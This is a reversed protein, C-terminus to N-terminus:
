RELRDFFAGCIVAISKARPLAARYSTLSM